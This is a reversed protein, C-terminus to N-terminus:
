DDHRRGVLVGGRRGFYDHNIRRCCALQHRCHSCQRAAVSLAGTAACSVFTTNAPLDDAVTVSEATGPGQNAVAITYTVNSGTLVPNPSATQAISLDADASGTFGEFQSARLASTTFADSVVLSDGAGFLILGRVFYPGDIGNQGIPAGNFTFTMTNLGSNFFDNGAAFGIEKGTRDALRASWQYFGPNIIEVEVGVDLLNFLGNGRTSAQLQVWDRSNIAPAPISPLQLGGDSPTSM